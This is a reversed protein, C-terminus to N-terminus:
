KTTETKTTETKTATGMPTDVSTTSKSTETSQTSPAPVITTSSGAPVDRQVITERQEKQAVTPEKVVTTSSTSSPRDCGALAAVALAALAPIVYKM